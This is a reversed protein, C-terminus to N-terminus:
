FEAYTLLYNNSWTIFRYMHITQFIFYRFSFNALNLRFNGLLGVKNSEQM